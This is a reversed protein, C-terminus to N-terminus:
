EGVLIMEASVSVEFIQADAEGAMTESTVSYERRGDGIPQFFVSWRFILIKHSSLHQASSLSDWFLSDEQESGESRPFIRDTFANANAMEDRMRLSHLFLTTETKEQSDGNECCSVLTWHQCKAM